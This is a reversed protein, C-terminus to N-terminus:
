ILSLGFLEAHHDVLVRPLRRQELIDQLLLRCHGVRVVLIPLREQREPHRLSVELPSQPPLSILARATTKMPIIQTASRAAPHRRCAARAAAGRVGTMTLTTPAGSTPVRVGYETPMTGYECTSRAKLDPPYTSLMRCTRLASPRM